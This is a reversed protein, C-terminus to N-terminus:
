MRYGLLRTTTLLRRVYDDCYAIFDFQRQQESIQGAEKKGCYFTVVADFPFKCELLTTRTHTGSFHLTGYYSCPSGYASLVLLFPFNIGDALLLKKRDLQEALWVCFPPV